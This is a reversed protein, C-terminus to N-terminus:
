MRQLVLPLSRPLFPPATAQHSMKLEDTTFRKRWVQLTGIDFCMDWNELGRRLKKKWGLHSPQTPCYTTKQCLSWCEDIMRVKSLSTSLCRWWQWGSIFQPYLGSWGAGLTRSSSPHNERLWRVVVYRLRRRRVKQDSRFVHSPSSSHRRM